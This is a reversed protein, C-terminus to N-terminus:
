DAPQIRAGSYGAAKAKALAAEAEGSQSFPGMRVRWLRGAATASGGVKSAAATANAKVAYAGVQVLLSGAAVPRVDAEAAMPAAAGPAVWTRAPAPRALAMRSELVRPAPAPALDAQALRPAGRPKEPSLPLGMPKTAVRVPAKAPAYTNAMPVPAATYDAGASPHGVMPRPARAAAIAAMPATAPASAMSDVMPPLTKPGVPGAISVPASPNLKRVLVALLPKPTAMRDPANGGARLLARESEPPNVRRVRVGARSNEDIGLQQAAAPTLEIAETGTMPGRREVRVLITRGSDLSTVEVYSPLPLSHHAASIASGAGAGTVAYGVEDYNMSDAPMFTQDGSQYPAGLVVPFEATPGNSQPAVTPALPLKHRAAAPQSALLVSAVALVTNTALSRDLNVPLRM